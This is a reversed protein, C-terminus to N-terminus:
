VSGDKFSLSVLWKSKRNVATQGRSLRDRRLNYACGGRCRGFLGKVACGEEGRLM